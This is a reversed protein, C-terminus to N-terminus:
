GHASFEMSVDLWLASHTLAGISIRDVGTLSIEGINELTIGGSAELLPYRGANLADRKEVAQRLQRANMNDLLIIDAGGGPLAQALQELTDVELWLPIERPTADRVHRTLAALSKEGGLTAALAALHNDKLMIGDYLGMRHNHGGGCRVAYKELKRWGPTTKRTDCIQPCPHTTGCSERVTDVFCRTLTAIGSLRGLFNLIIREASLLARAPGYLTALRSQAEVSGGDSVHSEIKITNSYWVAIHPLLVLGGVVGARRTVIEAQAMLGAPVAALSTADRGDRCSDPGPLGGLDERVALQILETIDSDVELALQHDRSTQSQPGPDMM